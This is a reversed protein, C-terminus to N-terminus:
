LNDEFFNGPDQKNSRSEQTFLIWDSMKLSKTVVLVILFLIPLGIGQLIFYGDSSWLRFLLYFILGLGLMKLTDSSLFYVREIRYLIFTKLLSELVSVTLVALAVGVFGYIPALFLMLPIAMISLMVSIQVSIAQKRRLILIQSGMWGFLRIFFAVSLIQVALTNIHTHIRFLQNIIESPFLVILLTLPTAVVFIFQMTKRALLTVKVIDSSWSLATHIFMSFSATAIAFILHPGFITAMYQGLKITGFYYGVILMDAFNFALLGLAYKLSISSINPWLKHYRFDLRFGPVARHFLLLAIAFAAVSVTVQWYMLDYIQINFFYIAIYYASLVIVAQIFHSFLVVARFRTLLLLIQLIQNTLIIFPVAFSLTHITSVYSLDKIIWSIPFALLYVVLASIIGIALAMQLSFNAIKNFSESSATITEDRFFRNFVSSIIRNGFLALENVLHISIYFIAVNAPGLKFILIGIILYKIRDLVLGFSLWLASNFFKNVSYM